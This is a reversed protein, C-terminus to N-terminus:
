TPQGNSDISTYTGAPIANGNITCGGELVTINNAISSTLHISAGSSITVTASKIEEITNNGGIDVTGGLGDVTIMGVSCNSLHIHGNQYMAIVPNVGTVETETLYVNAGGICNIVRGAAGSVFCSTLRLSNSNAVQFRSGVFNVNSAFSSENAYCVASGIDVTNSKSLSKVTMAGIVYASAQGASPYVTAGGPAFTVLGGQGGVTPSYPNGTLDIVAGSSITTRASSNTQYMAAGLSVTAGEKITINANTGGGALSSISNSGALYINGNGPYINDDVISDSITCTGGYIFISNSTVENGSIISSSLTLFGNAIQITGAYTGTTSNGSITCNELYASGSNVLYFAGGDAASGGTIACGSAHATNGSSVIIHTRGLDVVATNTLNAGEPLTVNDMMYSASSAMASGNSDHDYLVTAGGSEFTIAGGPAIPTTNTNGTLDLVAGSTLAVSGYNTEGRAAIYGVTNSGSFVVMGDSSLVTQNISCGGNVYVTGDADVRVDNGLFAAAAVNGSIVSNSMNVTGYTIYVGGAADGSSNGIISTNDLYLSGRSVRFAGGQATGGSGLGNTITCGSARTIANIPVTIRTAGLDIVSDSGAGTVKEVALGGGSVAVTSGSPIYTDGLTLTGGTIVANQLGLNSVTFKNTGCDVSGSVVTVEYGNGVLHKEGNVAASAFDLTTHDLSADVSIYQTTADSTNATELWYKLSNTGSGGSTVVHGAVHDEVSIIARGDHFRVTCNNVADPELPTALVVNSTTHINGTNAVFIEAHAEQGWNGSPVAYSDLTVSSTTAV